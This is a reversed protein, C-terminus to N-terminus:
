PFVTSLVKRHNDGRRTQKLCSRLVYAGKDIEQMEGGKKLEQGNVRKLKSWGRGYKETGKVFCSFFLAKNKVASDCLKKILFLSV